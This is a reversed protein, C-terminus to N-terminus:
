KNKKRGWTSTQLNESKVIERKIQKIFFFNVGTFNLLAACTPKCQHTLTNSDLAM